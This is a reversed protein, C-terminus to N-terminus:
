VVFALEKRARKQNAIEPNQIAEEQKLIFKNADYVLLSIVLSSSPLGSPTFKM